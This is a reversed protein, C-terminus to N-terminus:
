LEVEASKFYELELSCSSFELDPVNIVDRVSSGFSELGVGHGMAQMACYHGFLDPTLKRDAGTDDLCDALEYVSAIDFIGGIFGNIPVMRAALDQAAETAAPDLTHPMVDLIDCGSVNVDGCEDNLDAWASAFFTRAMGNLIQETTNM